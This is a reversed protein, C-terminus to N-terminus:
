VQLPAPLLLRPLLVLLLLLTKCPSIAATRDRLLLLPRATPELPGAANIVM